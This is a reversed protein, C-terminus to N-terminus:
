EQKRAVFHVRDGANIDFQGLPGVEDSRRQSAHIPQLNDRVRELNVSSEIITTAPMAKDGCGSILRTHDDQWNAFLLRLM